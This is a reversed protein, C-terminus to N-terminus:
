SYMLVHSHNWLHPLLVCIRVTLWGICSSGTHFNKYMFAWKIRVKQHLRGKHKTHSHRKCMEKKASCGQIYEIIHMKM